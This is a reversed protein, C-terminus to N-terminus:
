KRHARSDSTFELADIEGRRVEDRSVVEQAGRRAEHVLDASAVLQLCEFLSSASTYRKYRTNFSQQQPGWEHKGSM